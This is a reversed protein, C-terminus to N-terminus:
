FALALYHHAQLKPYLKSVNETKNKRHINQTLSLLWIQMHRARFGFSLTTFNQQTDPYKHSTSSHSQDRPPFPEPKGRCTRFRQASSPTSQVSPDVVWLLCNKSAACLAIFVPYYCLLCLLIRGLIVSRSGIAGCAQQSHKAEQM